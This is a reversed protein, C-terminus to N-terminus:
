PRALEVADGRRGSRAEDAAHQDPEGGALADRTAAPLGNRATLWRSPWASIGRM